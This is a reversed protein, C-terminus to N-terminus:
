PIEVFYLLNVENALLVAHCVLFICSRVILRRVIRLHFTTLMRMTAGLGFLLWVLALALLLWRVLFLSRLASTM